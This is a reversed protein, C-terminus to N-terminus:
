YYEFFNRYKSYQHPLYFPQGMNDSNVWEECLPEPSGDGGCCLIGPLFFLFLGYMNPMKQQTFQARQKRSKIHKVAYSYVIDHRLNCLKGFM